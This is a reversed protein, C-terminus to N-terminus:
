KVMKRRLVEGGNEIPTISSAQEHVEGESQLAAGGSGDGQGYEDREGGGGLGLNNLIESTTL